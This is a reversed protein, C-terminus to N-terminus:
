IISVKKCLYGLLLLPLQQVCWLPHTWLANWIRSRGRSGPWHPQSWVSHCCVWLIHMLTAFVVVVYTKSRSLNNLTVVTVSRCIGLWTLSGSGEPCLQTCTGRISSHLTFISVTGGCYLNHEGTLNTAKIQNQSVFDSDFPLMILHWSQRRFM